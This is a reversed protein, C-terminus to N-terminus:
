ILQNLALSTPAVTKPATIRASSGYNSVPRNKKAVEEGISKILGESVAKLRLVLRAHLKLTDRMGDTLKRIYVRQPSDQPGLTLDNVKLHSVVGKYEAMLRNKRGHLEKAQKTRHAQLYDTEQALLETIEITLRALRAADGSLPPVPEVSGDSGEFGPLDTQEAAAQKAEAQEWPTATTSTKEAEVRKFSIPAFGDRPM